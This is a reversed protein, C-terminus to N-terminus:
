GRWYFPLVAPSCIYLHHPKIRSPKVKASRPRHGEAAAPRVRLAPPDAARKIKENEVPKDAPQGAVVKAPMSFTTMM